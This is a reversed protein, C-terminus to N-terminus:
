TREKGAGYVLLFLGVLIGLAGTVYMQFKIFHSPTFIWTIKDFLTAVQQLPAGVLKIADPISTAAGAAKQWLGFPDVLKEATGWNWDVNQASGPTQSANGAQNGPVVGATNSPAGSYQLHSALLNVADSVRAGRSTGASREFEADFDAAATGPDINPNKLIALLDPMGQLEQMAYGLQMNVDTESGGHAKAYNDLATRRGGEWQAFGIANEATNNADPRFGSEVEWNGLVGAIGADSLGQAKLYAVITDVNNAM